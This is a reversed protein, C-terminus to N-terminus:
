MLSKEKRKVNYWNKKIWHLASLDINDFKDILFYNEIDYFIIISFKKEYTFFL